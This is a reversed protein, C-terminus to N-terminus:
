RIGRLVLFILIAGIAAAGIIWLAGHLFEERNFKRIEKESADELMPRTDPGNSVELSDWNPETVMM